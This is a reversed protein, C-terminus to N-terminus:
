QKVKKLVVTGGNGLEVILVNSDEKATPKEETRRSSGVAAKKVYNIEVNEFDVNCIELWFRVKSIMNSASINTELVLNTNAVKKPAFMIMQQDETTLEIRGGTTRSFSM